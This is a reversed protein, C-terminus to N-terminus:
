FEFWDREVQVRVPVVNANACAQSFEQAKGPQALRSLADAMHNDTTSIRDSSIRFNGQVQEAIIARAIALRRPIRSRGQSLLHRTAENDTLFSIEMGTWLHKWARIALLYAILELDAIPWDLLDEPVGTAFFQNNFYCFAGIGPQGQDWGNSSADLALDASHRPELFSKGNWTATWRAWWDIDLKFDEDLGVPRRAQSPERADAARKLALVRGLFVRGPPVVASCWLLRGALSALQKPTAVSMSQWEALMQRLLVLKEQPLSVLNTRTDYLIGLAVCSTSPPSIHGPTSSLKLTLSAVLEIFSNFLWVVNSEAGIGITDDIYVLAENDGCGCAHSCRCNLGSNKVGERPPLQTRFVWAVASSFRQSSQCAGRNGFSWSRDIFTEDNWSIALFPSQSPCALFQRYFRSYDAKWLKVVEGPYRYRTRKIAAVIQATGPLFIDVVKGRHRNHPIWSNIGRGRQSCDTIVRRKDPCNPKPVTGLPNRYVQFPLNSPLPGVIAGYQLESVLYAEVHEPFEFASPLNRTADLPAPNELLSFDWGYLLSNVLDRKDFYTGLIKEWPEPNIQQHQLVVKAGDMNPKNHQLVQSVTQVFKDIFTPCSGVALQHCSCPKPPPQDQSSLPEGPRTAELMDELLEPCAALDDELGGLESLPVFVPALPDLPKNTGKEVVLGNAEFRVPVQEAPRQLTGHIEHQALRGEPQRSVVSGPKAPPPDVASAQGAARAPRGTEAVAVPSTYATEDSALPQEPRVPSPKRIDTYQSVKKEPKGPPQQRRHRSTSTDRRSTAQSSTECAQTGLTQGSKSAFFEM